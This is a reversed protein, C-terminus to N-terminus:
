WQRREMTTQIDVLLTLIDHNYIKAILNHKQENECLRQVIDLGEGRYVPGPFRVHKIFLLLCDM